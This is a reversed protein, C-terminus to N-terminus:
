YTNFNLVEGCECNLITHNNKLNMCSIEIMSKIIHINNHLFEIELNNRNFNDGIFCNISNLNMFITHMKELLEKKTEPTFENLKKM